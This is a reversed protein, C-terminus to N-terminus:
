DDDQSEVKVTRKLHARLYSERSRDDAKAAADIRARLERSIRVKITVDDSM